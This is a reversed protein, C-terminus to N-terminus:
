AVLSGRTKARRQGRQPRGHSLGLERRLMHLGYYARSFVTGEPIGLAAATETGTLGKLYLHELVDRHGPRLRALAHRVDVATVVADAHDGVLSQEASTEAVEVPRSQRMRVKDMAINHAVRMLWGRVSGKEPSFDGCHRWARLMTEQLVDEALHRDRLLATVYALVLPANELYLRRVAADTLDPDAGGVADSGTAGAAGHGIDAVDEPPLAGTEAM